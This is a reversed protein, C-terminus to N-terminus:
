RQENAAELYTNATPPANLMKADNPDREDGIVELRFRALRYDETQLKEPDKLAFVIYIILTAVVLAAFLAWLLCPLTADGLRLTVSLAAVGCIVTLALLPALVSGTRVREILSGLSGWPTGNSMEPGLLRVENYRM